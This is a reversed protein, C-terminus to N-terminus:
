GESDDLADRRKTALRFAARFIAPVTTRHQKAIVAAQDYESTPVRLSFLVSPEGDKLTPRGPRRKPPADM